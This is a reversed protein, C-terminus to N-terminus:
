VIFEDDVFTSIRTLFGASPDYPTNTNNVKADWWACAAQLRSNVEANNMAQFRERRIHVQFKNDIVFVVAEARPNSDDPYYYAKTITYTAM